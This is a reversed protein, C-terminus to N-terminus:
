ISFFVFMPELEEGTEVDVINSFFRNARRRGPDEKADENNRRYCEVLYAYRAIPTVGPAQRLLVVVTEPEGDICPERFRNVDGVCLSKFAECYPYGSIVPQPTQVLPQYKLTEIRGSYASVRILLDSGYFMHGSQFLEGDFKWTASNLDDYLNGGGDVYRASLKTADFQFAAGELLKMVSARASSEPIADKSTLDAPIDERGRGFFCVVGHAPSIEMYTNDVLRLKDIDGYVVSYEVNHHEITQSLYVDLVSLQRALTYRAPPALLQLYEDLTCPATYTDAVDHGSAPHETQVVTTCGCLVLAMALAHMLGKCPHLEQLAGSLM